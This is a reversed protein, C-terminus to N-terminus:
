RNSQSLLADVHKRVFAQADDLTKIKKDITIDGHECTPLDGARGLGESVRTPCDCILSTFVGVRFFVPDAAAFAVAALDLPQDPSKLLARVVSKRTTPSPFSPLDDIACAVVVEARMGAGEIADVLAVCAAGRYVLITQSDRCNIASNLVIKITRRDPVDVRLIDSWPSPSRMAHLVPDVDCGYELGSRRRRKLATTERAEVQEVMGRLEYLRQESPTDMEKFFHERGGAWFKNSADLIWSAHSNAKYQNESNAPVPNRVREGMEWVSDYQVAQYRHYDVSQPTM